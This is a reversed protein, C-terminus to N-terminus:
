GGALAALKSVTNWNRATARTGLTKEVLAHTLKSRGIGDPYVVFAHPGHLRVVERGTIAARLAALERAGPARKLFTVVLHSPDTRAAEAFPNAAILTQLEVATRVFVDTELGFQRRAERELLGELDAPRGKAGGFVLNGTQLLSRPDAFGLKALLTRLDAMAVARHGGVNIARLLAVHQPRAAVAM